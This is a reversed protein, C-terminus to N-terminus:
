LKKHWIYIWRLSSNYLNKKKEMKNVRQAESEAESKARRAVVPCSSGVLRSLGGSASLGPIGWRGRRHARWLRTFRLRMALPECYTVVAQSRSLETSARGQVGQFEGSLRSRVFPMRSKREMLTYTYQVGLLLVKPM